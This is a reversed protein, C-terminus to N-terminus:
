LALPKETVIQRQFAVWAAFWGLAGTIGVLRLFVRIDFLSIQWNAAYTVTFQQLPKRLWLSLVGLILITMLGGMLGLITGFYLFPRRIFANNAGILRYIEIENLYTQSAAHITNGIIFLIGIGLLGALSYIIRNALKLLTLLRKIWLTDIQLTAVEPLQKLRAALENITIESTLSPKIVLVHPLPNEQLEHMLNSLDSQQALDRLGQQPSIHEISLIASTNKLNQVLETVRSNAIENKLYVTIQASTNLHSSLQQLNKLAIYLATPFIIATSIVIITIFSAIPTKLLQQVSSLFAQAHHGLYLFLKNHETIKTMRKSSIKNQKKHKQQKAAM